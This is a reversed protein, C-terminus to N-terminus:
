SLELVREHKAKYMQSGYEARIEEMPTSKRNKRSLEGLYWMKKNVAFKFGLEKIADKHPYTNGSLWIWTGCIEIIIGQLKMLTEILERWAEPNENNQKEATSNKNHEKQLKSFRIDYESNIRKMIEADGGADPHHKKALTRYKQKLEEITKCDSFYM